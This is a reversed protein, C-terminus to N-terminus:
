IQADLVYNVDLPIGGPCTSIQGIYYTLVIYELRSKAAKSITTTRIWPYAQM